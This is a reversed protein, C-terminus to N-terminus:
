AVEATARAHQQDVLHDARLLTEQETEGARGRVRVPRCCPKAADIHPYHTVIFGGDIRKV